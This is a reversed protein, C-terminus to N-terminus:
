SFLDFTVFGFFVIERSSENTITKKYRKQNIQGDTQQAQEIEYLTKQLTFSLLYKGFCYVTLGIQTPNIEM